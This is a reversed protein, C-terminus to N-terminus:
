KQGLLRRTGEYAQALQPQTMRTYSFIANESRHSLLSRITPLDTGREAAAVTAGGRLTHATLMRIEGSYWPCATRVCRQLSLNWTGSTYGEWVKILGHPRVNKFSTPSIQVVIRLLESFIFGTLPAIRLFARLTPDGPIDGVLEPIPLVLGSGDKATKHDLM